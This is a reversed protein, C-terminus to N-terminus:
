KKSKKSREAIWVTNAAQADSVFIVQGKHTMVGLGHSSDWTCGFEFGIYPVNDDGESLIYVKSLGILQKLDEPQKLDPMIQKAEEEDFGYALKEGPYMKFIAQLIHITIVKENDLLDQFAKLQEGYPEKQEGNPVEVILQVTGDSEKNVEIANWNGKPLRFGSWSELTLNGIWKYEDWVLQPFSSITM